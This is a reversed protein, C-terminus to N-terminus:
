PTEEALEGGHSPNLLKVRQGDSLFPVGAVVIVDGPSIGGIVVIQDGVLGSTQVMTKRVTSTEPVFIFVHRDGRELGPAVAQVPVLYGSEGEREFAFLLTLEATMGPRVQEDADIITAKVPFANASTAASGVESVVAEYVADARNQLRVEGQLGLYVDGIMNEPISVTAEMAGEVFVDFLPQGRRVEEFAEVHRASVVGDFPARLEANQLDRRALSLQARGYSVNERTGEFAARSQDVARQSTAGPDQAQIRRQRDYASEREENQAEARALAARASEVNLEFSQKDLVALVQGSEFKDGVVLRIEQVLGSVEFSLSSNDTPEVTGPFKRMQGSAREAVLITKVARIREVPEAVDQGCASTLFIVLSLSILTRM